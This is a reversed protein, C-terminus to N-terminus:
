RQGGTPVHRRRPLTLVFTTGCGPGDSEATLTGGMEHAANAATHLGYGHGDAKTTFGLNFIKALNEEPIGVGTDGIEIRADDGADRLRITLVRQDAGAMAQRANQLLNIVIELLRHKDLEVEDLDDYSRTLELHEDVGHALDTIRLAEDLKEALDLQEVLEAQVAFRQQSKILECIHEIGSTLSGVETAITRQQEGLQVSLATLFPRLHRGMPDSEVFRGLDDGHEELIGVVKQLDGISM